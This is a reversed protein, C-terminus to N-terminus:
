IPVLVFIFVHFRTSPFLIVRFSCNFISAQKGGFFRWEGTKAILFFLKFVPHLENHHLLLFCLKLLSWIGEPSLMNMQRCKNMWSVSILCRSSAGSPPYLFSYFRTEGEPASWFYANILTICLLSSLMPLYRSCTSGVELPRHWCYDEVGSGLSWLALHLPVGKGLTNGPSGHETHGRQAPVRSTNQAEDGLTSFM